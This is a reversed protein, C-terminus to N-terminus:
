EDIIESIFHSISFYRFSLRMEGAEILSIDILDSVLSSLNGTHRAAKELFLRNVKKDDMAGDLLTELFGQIAFIPTKLEHSVNGLFETRVRELKRLYEIDHKMRGYMRRIESELFHLTEPLVIDEEKSIKDNRILNITQSILSLEKSRKYSTIVMLLLYSITYFTLVLFANRYGESIYWLLIFFLVFVAILEKGIAIGSLLYHRKFTKKSDIVSM